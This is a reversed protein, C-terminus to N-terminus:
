RSGSANRGAREACGASSSGFGSGAVGVGCGFGAAAGAGAAGTAGTGAGAGTGSVAGSAGAGSEAGTLGAGAASAAGGGLGAEAFGDTCAARTSRGEPTVTALRAGRADAVRGAVRRRVTGIWLTGSGAGAEFTAM